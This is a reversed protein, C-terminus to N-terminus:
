VIFFVAIADSVAKDETDMNKILQLPTSTAAAIRSAIHDQLDFKSSASSARSIDVLTLRPKWTLKKVEGNNGIPFLLEQVILCDDNIVLSGDSVLSILEDINEKLKEQRKGSIRKCTLWRNVDATATDINVIQKTPTNEM